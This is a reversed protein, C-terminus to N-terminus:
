ADSLEDITSSLDDDLFKQMVTQSRFFWDFGVFDLLILNMPLQM